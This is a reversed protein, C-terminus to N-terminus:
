VGVGSIEVVGGVGDGGVAGGIEAVV